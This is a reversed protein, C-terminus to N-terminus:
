PVPDHGHHAEKHDTPHVPSISVILGGDVLAALVVPSFGADSATGAVLARRLGGSSILAALFALDAEALCIWGVDDDRRHVLLRAAGADLAIPRCGDCPQQHRQWIRDVPFRSAVLRCCPHLRVHVDAEGAAALASAAADRGMAPADPAHGARQIAYELRAVGALYPLAATGPLSAIFASFTDGYAFLCPDAPPSERVYRRAAAAFFPEGVLQRVVPFAAALADILTVGYHNAYIALRAAAGPADAIISAAAPQADGVVIAAAFHRQLEHLSPM